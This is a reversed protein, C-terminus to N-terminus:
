VNRLYFETDRDLQQHTKAFAQMLANQEKYGLTILHLYHTLATRLEPTSNFYHTLAFSQAYFREIELHDNKNKSDIPLAVTNMIKESDISIFSQDVFLGLNRVSGEAEQGIIIQTGDFHFTAFYDANGEDYWTPYAQTEETFRLLFHHYEHLLVQRAFSGKEETSIYRHVNAFAYSGDLRNTFAGAWNKPFGLARFKSESHIALIKLPKIDKLIRLKLINITFYRYAELDQVMRRANEEDLDTVVDFNKSTAHIWKGETLRELNGAQANISFMTALWIISIMFMKRLM